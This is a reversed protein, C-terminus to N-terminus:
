LTYSKCVSFLRVVRYINDNLARVNNMNPHQTYAVSGCAPMAVRTTGWVRLERSESNLTVVGVTAKTLCYLLEGVLRLGPSSIDAM